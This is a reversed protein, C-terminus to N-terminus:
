KLLYKKSILSFVVGFLFSEPYDKFICLRESLFTIIIIQVVTTNIKPNIKETFDGSLFTMSEGIIHFFSYMFLEIILFSKNGM